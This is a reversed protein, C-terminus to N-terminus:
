GDESIASFIEDSSINDGIDFAVDGNRASDILKYRREGALSGPALKQSQPAQSAPESDAKLSTSNHM